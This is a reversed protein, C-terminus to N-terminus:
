RIAEEAHVEVTRTWFTTVKLRVEFEEGTESAKLAARLAENAIRSAKGHLEGVRDAVDGDVWITIRKGPPRGNNTM